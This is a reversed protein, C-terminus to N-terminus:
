KRKRPKKPTANKVEVLEAEVSGIRERRPTPWYCTEEDGIDEPYNRFEEAINELVSVYDPKQFDPGKIAKGNPNPTKSMNSIQLVDSVTGLDIGWTVASGALVTMVDAMEQAVAAIQEAKSEFPMIKGEPFEPSKVKKYGEVAMLFEHYEEEIIALRFDREVTVDPERPDGIPQGMKKHFALVQSMLQYMDLGRTDM